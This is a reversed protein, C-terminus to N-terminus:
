GLMVSLGSNSRGEMDGATATTRCCASVLVRALAMYVVRDWVVVDLDWSGTHEPNFLPLLFEGIGSCLLWRTMVRGTLLLINDSVRSGTLWNARGGPLWKAKGRGEPLWNHDSSPQLDEPEPLLLRNNDGEFLTSKLGSDLCCCFRTFSSSSSLQTPFTIASVDVFSSFTSIGVHKGLTHVGM